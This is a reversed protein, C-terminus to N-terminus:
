PEEEVLSYEGNKFTMSILPERASGRESNGELTFYNGRVDDDTTFTGLWEEAQEIGELDVASRRMVSFNEDGQAQMVSEAQGMRDLLTDETHITSDVNFHIYVDRHARDVFTMAVEEERYSLAAGPIREEASGALFGNEFCLGPGEPMEGAKRPHLHRLLYEVQKLRDAKNSTRFKWQEKYRDDDVDIAKLKVSLMTLGDFKYGELMRAADPMHRSENHDIIVIGDNREIVNKLYPSDQKHIPDISSLEDQRKDIFQNFMTRSMRRASIEANNVTLSSFRLALQEPMEAQFRGMCVPALTDTYAEVTQREQENMEPVGQEPAGCATALLLLGSILPAQLQTIM